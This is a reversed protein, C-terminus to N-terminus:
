YGEYEKELKQFFSFTIPQEQWLDIEPWQVNKQMEQINSTYIKMIGVIGQKVKEEFKSDLEQCERTALTHLRIDYSKLVPLDDLVNKEWNRWEELEDIKSQLSETTWIIQFAVELHKELAILKDVMKQVEAFCETKSDHLLEQETLISEKLSNLHDDVKWKKSVEVRLNTNEEELKKSKSEAEVMKKNLMSINYVSAQTLAVYTKAILMLDEDTKEFFVEDEVIEWVQGDREKVKQFKKTSM